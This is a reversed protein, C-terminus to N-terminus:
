DSTVSHHVGDDFNQWRVSGGPKVVANAPSFTGQFIRVFVSDPGGDAVQVAGGERHNATTHYQCHYPYDGAASFTHIYNQSGTTAGLLAPSDLEPPAPPNTGTDGKCSPLFLACALGVCCAFRASRRSV